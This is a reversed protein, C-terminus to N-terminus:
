SDSNIYLCSFKSVTRQSAGGLVQRVKLTEKIDKLVGSIM